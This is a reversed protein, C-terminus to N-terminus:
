FRHSLPPVLHLTKADQLHLDPMQCSTEKITVMRESGLAGKLLEWLMISGGEYKMPDFGEEKKHVLFKGTQVPVM